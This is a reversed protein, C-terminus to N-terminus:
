PQLLAAGEGDKAMINSGLLPQTLLSSHVRDNIRLWPAMNITVL